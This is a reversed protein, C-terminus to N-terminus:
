VQDDRILKEDVRDAMEDKTVKIYRECNRETTHGSIAMLERKEFIGRKYLNTITSRRATHSSVIEYKRMLVTGNKNRKYLPSGNHEEAYKKSERYQKRQDASLKEGNAVMKYM